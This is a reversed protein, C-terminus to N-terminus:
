AAPKVMVAGVAAIREVSWYRPHLLSAAFVDPDIERYRFSCNARDAAQSLAARLPDHGRLMPAGSYFLARGGPALAAMAAEAWSVTVDIGLAGGGDSYTLGSGAIYPPNAVIVDFPGDGAPVGDCRRLTASLGAFAANIRALGLAEPNVDSLVLHAGPLQDLAFIGGVGAGAGLDLVRGARECTRLEGCLFDTFRYSDPGLFVHRDGRVPFGSHLFLRKGLSAVRLASVLLPGQAPLIGGARMLEVLRPDQASERFPLNWGFIDQINAAEVRGRRLLVRRHTSPTPTTFQYGEAALRHLLRLLAVQAWERRSAPMSTDPPTMTAEGDGRM